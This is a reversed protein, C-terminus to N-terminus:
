PLSLAWVLAPVSIGLYTLSPSRIIYDIKPRRLPVGPKIFAKLIGLDKIV